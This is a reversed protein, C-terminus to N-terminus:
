EYTFFGEETAMNRIGYCSLTEFVDSDEMFHYPWWSLFEESLGSLPTPPLYFLFETGGTLGSPQSSIYRANDWTWEKGAPEETSLGELVMSFTNDDIQRVQTFQGSFRCTYFTVEYDDGTEEMESNHFLGEFFGDQHLTFYSGWAGAGSSFTFELPFVDWPFVAKGRKKLIHSSDKRNEQFAAEQPIVPMNLSCLRERLLSFQGTPATIKQDIGCGVPLFFCFVAAMAISVFLFNKRKM